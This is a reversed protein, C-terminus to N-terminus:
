VAPPTTPPTASPPTASPPTASPPTAPPPTVPPAVSPTAVATEAAALEKKQTLATRVILVVGIVVFAVLLLVNIGLDSYIVTGGYTIRDVLLGSLFAVILTAVTLISLRIAGDISVRGGSGKRYLFLALLAVGLAVWGSIFGIAWVINWVIIGAPAAILALVTGRSKNEPPLAV